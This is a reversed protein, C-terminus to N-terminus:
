GRLRAFLAPINPQGTHASIGGDVLLNQGTIFSARPSALYLVADAIEGPQGQRGMPISARYADTLVQPVGASMPTLTSGPSVCNVRIGEGAYDIALCRTLEIVGAKAVCYATLGFDAAVGSLSGTNVICGKREILHPLAIRSAWFVADLDIAMTKRWSEITESLALGMAAIGANNVLVDLGGFRAVAANVAGEVADMDSLEAAHPVFAEGLEAALAALREESRGVGMVRAGEAVFRRAIHEGIGSSAGTVLVAKEHFEM